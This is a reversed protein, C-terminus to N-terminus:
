KEDAEGEDLPEIEFFPELLCMDNYSLEIKSSLPIVIKCDIKIESDVAELDAWEENLKEIEEERPVYIGNEIDCYKKLVNHRMKDYIALEENIKKFLRHVRYLLKIELPQDAIKALAPAAKTLEHLKM